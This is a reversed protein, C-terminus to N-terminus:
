VDITSFRIYNTAFGLYTESDAPERVVFSRVVVCQVRQLLHFSASIVVRRRQRRSKCCVASAHQVGCDGAGLLFCSLSVREGHRVDGGYRVSDETRWLLLQRQAINVLEDLLVVGSERLVPFTPLVRHAMIQRQVVAEQSPLDGQVLFTAVPADMRAKLFLEATPIKRPAPEGLCTQPILVSRLSIKTSKM